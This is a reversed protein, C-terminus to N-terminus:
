PKPRFFFGGRESITLRKAENDQQHAVVYLKWAELSGHRSPGGAAVLRGALDFPPGGNGPAVILRGEHAGDIAQVPDQARSFGQAVVHGAAVMEIDLNLAYEM